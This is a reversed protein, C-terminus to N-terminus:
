YQVKVYGVTLEGELMLSTSSNLLQGSEGVHVQYFKGCAFGTGDTDEAIIPQREGTVYRDRGAGPTADLMQKQRHTLAASKHVTQGTETNTVHSAVYAQRQAETAGASLARVRVGNPREGGIAASLLM